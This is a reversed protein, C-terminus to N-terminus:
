TDDDNGGKMDGNILALIRKCLEEVVLEDTAVGYIKANDYARIFMKKVEERSVRILYCESRMDKELTM